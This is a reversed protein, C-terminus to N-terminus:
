PWTPARGARAKATSCRASSGAASTRLDPRRRRDLLPDRQAAPVHVHARRRQTDPAGTALDPVVKYSEAGGAQSYGLLGDNTLTLMEWAAFAPRGPRAGRPDAADYTGPPNAIAITLTGGRHASPPAQAAVYVTDGDLAVGDPLAGTTVTRGRPRDRSRARVADGSGANAVWVHGDAAVAIAARSGRRGPLGGGATRDVPRGEGRDRRARERGLRRRPRRRRRWPRERREDNRGGHAGGPRHALSRRDVQGIVWVCGDGAAVDDAGDEVSIPTGTTGTVPRDPHRHPRGLQRGLRRRARLRDGDARERGPDHQRGRAATRARTSRPSPAPSRTRSGSSGTRRRHAGVARRPPAPDDAAGHEYDPRDALRDRPRVDGGLDIRRRRHDRRALGGLPVSAFIRGTSASVAGVDNGGLTLEPARSGGSSLAVLPVAVAVVIVGALAAGIVTRRRVASSRERKVERPPPSSSPLARAVVHTASETRNVDKPGDADETM